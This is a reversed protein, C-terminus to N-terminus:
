LQAEPFREVVRLAIFQLNHMLKQKFSDILVPQVYLTPSDLESFPVDYAIHWDDNNIRIWDLTANINIHLRNRETSDILMLEYNGPLINQLVSLFWSRLENNLLKNRIEHDKKAKIQNYIQIKLSKCSAFCAYLANMDLDNLIREIIDNPLCLLM